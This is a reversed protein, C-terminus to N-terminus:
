HGFTVDTIFATSNGDRFFVKAYWDEMRDFIPFGLDPEGTVYRSIIEPMPNGLLTTGNAEDGGVEFKTKRDTTGKSYTLTWKLEITKSREIQAIRDRPIARDIVKQAERQLANQRARSKPARSGEGALWRRLTRRPVGTLRETREQGYRDFLIRIADGVNPLEHEPTPEPPVWNGEIQERILRDVHAIYGADRGDSIDEDRERM